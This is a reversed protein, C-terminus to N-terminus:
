KKAWQGRLVYLYDIAELDYEAIANDVSRAELLSFDEAVVSHDRLYATARDGISELLDLDGFLVEDDGGNGDFSTDEVNTLRLLSLTTEFEVEDYSANLVERGDTGKLFALDLGNLLDLETSEFGEANVTQGTSLVVRTNSQRARAVDSGDTGTLFAEDHGGQNAILDVIKFDSASVTRNSSVLEVDGGNSRFVDNGASDFIRATDLGGSSGDVAISDFNDFLLTSGETVLMSREARSVFFDTGSTGSLEASDNGTSGVYVVDFGSSSSTFNEGKLTTWFEGHQEGSTLTDSGASDAMAITDHGGGARVVINQTGIANLTYQDNHVSVANTRTAVRDSESGLVLNVTDEGNHGVIKFEEISSSGFQYGVGNVDIFYQGSANRTSVFISDDHNTGHITLKGNEFAVQNSLEFDVSSSQGIAKIFYTEGKQAVVNVRAEGTHTTSTHLRNLNSDYIEIVFPRGDQDLQANAEVTLYGDRAATIEFTSQGNITQNLYQNSVVQGWNITQGISNGITGGNNNVNDSLGSEGGAQNGSAQFDVNIKYHGSGEATALAFSYQEGAVVDFTIENGIIAASSGDVDILPVLDHTVEFTLTVQGTQDATFEFTDVDAIKGITGEIVEGGILVGTDTATEVSDGHRDQIVAALAAELNIKHYYGDTVSDYIQDATERFQQYLLEQTINTEGVFENAQRLVASAGAVYPAAQSTGSSGLFQGTQFNFLHDPVTSRLLEGPAVLVDENRQSFDSIQGDAGHSAVPVVHESVAPYSLGTEGFTNFANGAAVSIFLGDAELQAFEDELTAWDPVTEANWNTGLSLNVTTIPNEFADKNDHVWQLAAEVWELNSEGNDGFVRLGVLDVGSSVGRYQDDSSGIIGAVHTGHFGVPGDDYPNADNEAFDWGGVVRHGEGFGGGLAYHDWAIGSDIVAVTQGAGDFGYQDAIGAAVTSADGLSDSQPQIEVAQQTIYPSAIDLEPLISAVAQASMVLRKEFQEFQLRRQQNIKSQRSM